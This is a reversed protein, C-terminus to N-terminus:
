VKEVGMGTNGEWLRLMGKTSGDEDRRWIERMEGSNCKEKSKGFVKEAIMGQCILKKKRRGGPLWKKHLLHSSLFHVKRLEATSKPDFFNM